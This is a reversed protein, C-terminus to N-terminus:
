RQATREGLIQQPCYTATACRANMDQKYNLNGFTWSM